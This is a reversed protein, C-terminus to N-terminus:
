AAVAGGNWQCPMAPTKLNDARPKWTLSWEAFSPLNIKICRWRQSTSGKPYNLALPTYSDQARLIRLKICRQCQITLFAPVEWCELHIFIRVGSLPASVVGGRNRELTYSCGWRPEKQLKSHTAPTDREQSTTTCCQVQSPHRPCYSRRFGTASWPTSCSCKRTDRWLKLSLDGLADM